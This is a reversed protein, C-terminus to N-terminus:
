LHNFFDHFILGDARKLFLFAYLLCDETGRSEYMDVLKVSFVLFLLCNDVTLLIGVSKKVSLM